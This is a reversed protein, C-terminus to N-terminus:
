FNLTLEFDTNETAFENQIITNNYRLSNSSKTFGITAVFKM